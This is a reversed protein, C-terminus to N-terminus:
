FCWSYASWIYIYSMLLRLTLSRYQEGLVTWTIFDLLNLQAPCTARIPSLLPTHLTKAPFGSPFLGSPLGLRLHFSLILISRWAAPHLPISQILSASSLSLHRASIFATIFKQSGYFAPFKKVPQFSTPKELLIRSWPTLLYTFDQVCFKLYICVSKFIQVNQFVNSELIDKTQQQTHVCTHHQPRPHHVRRANM